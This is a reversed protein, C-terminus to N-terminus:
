FQWKIVAPLSSRTGLHGAKVCGWKSWVGSGSGHRKNNNLQILFPFLIFEFRISSWIPVTMCQLWWFSSLCAFLLSPCILLFRSLVQTEVAVGGGEFGDLCLWSLRIWCCCCCCFSSLNFFNFFASQWVMHGILNFNLVHIGMVVLYSKREIWYPQWVM